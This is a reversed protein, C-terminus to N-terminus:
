APVPFRVRFVNGRPRPEVAVTGGHAAAAWQAIALGLGSGAAGSARVSPARYFREFVRDREEATLTQAEDLFDIGVAENGAEVLVDIRAGPPSFKIANELLNTAIRRLLREDGRLQAPGGAAIEVRVDRGVALPRLSASVDHVLENLDVLRRELPHELVQGEALLTLDSVLQSLRESEGAIATLAARLTEAPLTGSLALEAETRVLTVPTKMEHAADALFSRVQSASADVRDLLANLTAALRGLEDDAHAAALRGRGAGSPRAAMSAAQETMAAIPRLTRRALWYGGALALALGALGGELLWARFSALSAELPATQGVVAIAVPAHAKALAYQRIAGRYAPGAPVIVLGRSQAARSWADPALSVDGSASADPEIPTRGLSVEAAPGSRIEGYMGSLRFEELTTEAARELARAPDGATEPATRAEEFEEQFANGVTSLNAVLDADFAAFAFTRYRVYSALSLVALV